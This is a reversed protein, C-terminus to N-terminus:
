RIHMKQTVFSFYLCQACFFKFYFACTEFIQIYVLIHLKKYSIYPVQISPPLQIVIKTPPVRNQQKAEAQAKLLQTKVQQQISLLYQKPLSSGQIGQLIIRPGQPTQVLQATIQTPQKAPSTPAVDSVAEAAAQPPPLPETPFKVSEAPDNRIPPSQLIQQPLTPTVAQPSTMVQQLISVPPPEAPQVLQQAVASQPSAQLLQQQPSPQVQQQVPAPTTSILVQKGNLMALRATGTALQKAIAQAQAIDPGQVIMQNGKFSVVTQGLTKVEVMQKPPAAPTTAAASAVQSSPTMPQPTVATATSPTLVTPAAAVNAVPMQPLQPTTPTTGTLTASAKPICYTKGGSVFVTTGPPIQSGPALQTAVIQGPTAPQLVSNTAVAMKLPSGANLPSMSPVVPKIQGGPVTSTSPQILLKNQTPVAPSAVVSSNVVPSAAAGKVGAQQTIIQLKGDATQVLQQGPLLGRVQIKGDNSRVIQVKQQTGPAPTVPTAPQSVVPTAPQLLSQPQGTTTVM